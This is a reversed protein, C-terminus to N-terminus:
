HAHKLNAHNIREHRLIHRTIKRDRKFGGHQAQFAAKGPTERSKDPTSAATASSVAFISVMGAVFLRGAHKRLVAGCNGIDHNDM